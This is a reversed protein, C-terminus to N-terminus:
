AVWSTGLIARLFNLTSKSSETINNIHAKFTLQADFTVGLFKFESVRPLFADGSKLTFNDAKTRKETKTEPLKIGLRCGM